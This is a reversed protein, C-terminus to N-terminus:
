QTQTAIQLARHPKSHFRYHTKASFSWVAQELGGEHEALTETSLLSHNDIDRIFHTNSADMDDWSQHAGTSEQCHVLAEPVKQLQRPM